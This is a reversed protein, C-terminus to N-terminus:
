RAYELKKGCHACKDEIWIHMNVTCIEFKPDIDAGLEKLTRAILGYNNGYVDQVFRLLKDSDIVIKM